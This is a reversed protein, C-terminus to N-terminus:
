SITMVQGVECNHPTMWGSEVVFTRWWLIMIVNAQDHPHQQCGLSAKFSVGAACAPLCSVSLVQGLCKIWLPVGVIYPLKVIVWEGTTPLCGISREHASTREKVADSESSKVKSGFGMAHKTQENHEHMARNQHRGSVWGLIIEIRELNNWYNWIIAFYNWLKLTPGTSKEKHHSQSIINSIKM